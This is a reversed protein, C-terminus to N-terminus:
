SAAYKILRINKFTCNGKTATGRTTFCAIRADTNFASSDSPLGDVVIHGVNGATSIMMPNYTSNNILGICPLSTSRLNEIDVSLRYRFGSEITLRYIGQAYTQNSDNHVCLTSASEIYDLVTTNSAGVFWGSATFAPTVDTAAIVGGVTFTTTKNLFTVTITNSGAALTGSLAYADDSLAYPTINVYATVTLYQKLDGLEDTTFIKNTGADFVASLTITEGGGGGSIDLAALEDLTFSGSEGAAAKIKAALATLKSKSVIGREDPM